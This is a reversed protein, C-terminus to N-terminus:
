SSSDDDDDSSDDDQELIAAIAAATSGAQGQAAAAAAAAAAAQEKKKKAECADVAHKGWRGHFSCWVWDKGKFKMTAKGDPNETMWAEDEGQKRKIKATGGDDGGGTRNQKLLRLKGALKTHASETQELKASLAIIESQEKTPQMYSGSLVLRKYEQDMSLMLEKVDMANTGNCYDRKLDKIYRLLRPDTVQLYANILHMFLDDSM